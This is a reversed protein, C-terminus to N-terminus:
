FNLFNILKCVLNQRHVELVVVYSGKDPLYTEERKIETLHVHITKPLEFVVQFGVLPLV